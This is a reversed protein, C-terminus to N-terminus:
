KRQTDRHNENRQEILYQEIRDLKQDMSELRKELVSVRQELVRGETQGYYSGMRAVIVGASFIVSSVFIALTLWFRGNNLVQM